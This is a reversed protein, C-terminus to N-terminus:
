QRNLVEIAKQLQTDKEEEIELKDKLEEPLKVEEDPQIGIGNIKNRNPTYYEQTTIKLGSGNKLSFLEQIVGKGYTKTGVTTAKNNEKLAGALIESASATSENTLIVIPIEIIPAKKAKSVEEKNNKDVTILLTDGKNVILDAIELAEDVIGGGNNRIDIILSKINKNKLEKLREEFEESCGDDFTNFKIYGINDNIVKNEVHNVKVTERTIELNLTKNDRIIELKVKTGAEGKIKNSAETLQDGTYSVGDVKAIIDGPLIGAKYAPSDKIPSIVLVANKQVDKTLYVGIGVFNGEVDITFEEMEEKTLYQTYPDNLGEIYGKIAGDILDQEDFNGLFKQDILKRFGAITNAIGGDNGSVYIYKGTNGIYKYLCMTTVMFTITAVLVILMIIKYIKQRKETSM